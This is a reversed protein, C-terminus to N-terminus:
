RIQFIEKWLKEYRPFEKGDDLTLMYAATPRVKEVPEVNHHAPTEGARAYVRQGEESIAWRAWLLAANPHPAGKLISVAGGVEGVGETLLPQIPAGKKMRPPFHHAYCTFCIARQGAVLFEALQSHGRHFEVQNAAIRKFLDIARDDSNYKRKALGILLQYDRPEGMLATKWKASALDEFGKPEEGKKVLQTNWGIIYFQTDTAVWHESKLQAPYAAAEPLVIPDILKQEAMQAMYPLAGGFVDAIVRGGRMEAVHRAVLKDATADFHDITVGPFRKMFAPLIVETSRQSLALYLNIKGGEKKAKEYLEDLSEPKAPASAAFVVRGAILTLAAVLLCGTVGIGVCRPSPKHSHM